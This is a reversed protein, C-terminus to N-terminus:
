HYKNTYKYRGRGGGRGEKWQTVSTAMFDDCLEAELRLEEALGAPLFLEDALYTMICSETTSDILIKMGGGGWWTGSTVMFDDLLDAELRLEDAMGALLLLEDALYTVEGM